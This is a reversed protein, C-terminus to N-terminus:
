ALLRELRMKWKEWTPMHKSQLDYFNTTHDHYVLHCLEHTIVYEICGKPAKVLEPNLIIKGRPTCSGWRTPMDRLVLQSPEVGYKKFDEIIPAAVKRFVIHAQAIYWKKLVHKAAEKTKAYVILEKGARRVLPTNAIKVLLFYQTGLYLFTEGSVYKKVTQKPHFSLFFSQQKLIWPAKKRVKTKIKALDADMPAKVWVTYDPRVTIGLTKRESFTLYFSITHSGFQISEEM